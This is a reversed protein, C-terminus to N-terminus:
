NAKQNNWQSVADDMAAQPAEQGLLAKQIQVQLIHSLTQYQPVEPRSVMHNFQQQAAHVLEAGGAKAVAPKQLSSKYFPLSLQAYQEEVSQSALYDIYELAQQPHASNKAVAIGMAGNVSPAPFPVAATGPAPEVGIQGAVTSQSKDNETGYGYTWNMSFAAKGQQMVKNVDDEVSQTSSPNSLGDKLSNVMFNLADIAGGKNVVLNGNNDVIQGGFDAVLTSYDCVLAEAQSWSWDIPYQAIGKQKLVKADSLVQDWTTPPNTIGAKTLMTKNYYFYKTDMIWPVGYYHNQYEVTGLAPQYADNTMDSPLKGTLDSIFGAKAFEPTWITDVLVTDYSNGGTALGTVIKDHLSDYPVFSLNVKINPHKAEFAKTMDEINQQSYGAQKMFLTNLTVTQNSSSSNSSTSTTQGCGVLLLSLSAGVSLATVMKKAKM